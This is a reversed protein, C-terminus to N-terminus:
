KTGTAIFHTTPWLGEHRLDAEMIGVAGAALTGASGGSSSSSGSGGSPYTLTATMRGDIQGGDVLKSASADLVQMQTHTDLQRWPPDTHCLVLLISAKHMNRMNHMSHM